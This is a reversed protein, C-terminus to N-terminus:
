RTEKEEDWLEALLTALRKVLELAARADSEVAYPGDIQQQATEAIKLFSDIM